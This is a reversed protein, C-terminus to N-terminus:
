RRNDLSTPVDLFAPPFDKGFSMHVFTGVCTQVPAEACIPIRFESSQEIRYSTSVSIHRYSLRAIQIVAGATRHILHSRYGLGSSRKSAKCHRSRMEYCSTLEENIVQLHISGPWCTMMVDLRRDSSQRYSAYVQKTNAPFGVSLCGSLTLGLDLIYSLPM